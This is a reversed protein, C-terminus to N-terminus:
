SLQGSKVTYIHINCPSHLKRLWETVIKSEICVVTKVIHEYLFLMLGTPYQILNKELPFTMSKEAFRVDQKRKYYHQM